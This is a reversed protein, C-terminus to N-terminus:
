QSIMVFCSLVVYTVYLWDIYSLVISTQPWRYAAYSRWPEILMVVVLTITFVGGEWMDRRAVLICINFFCQWLFLLVCARSDKWNQVNVAVPRKECAHWRIKELWCLQKYHYVQFLWKATFLKSYIIIFFCQKRVLCFNWLIIKWCLIVSKIWM